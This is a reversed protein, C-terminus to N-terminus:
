LGQGGRGEGGWASRSKSGAGNGYHGAVMFQWRASQERTPYISIEFRWSSPVSHAYMYGPPSTVTHVAHAIMLRERLNVDYKGIPELDIIEKIATRTLLLM